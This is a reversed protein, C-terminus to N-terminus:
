TKRFHAQAHVSPPKFLFIKKFPDQGQVQNLTLIVSSKVEFRGFGRDIPALGRLLLAFCILARQERRRGGSVRASKRLVAVLPNVGYKHVALVSFL